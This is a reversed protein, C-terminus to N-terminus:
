SVPMMLFQFFSQYWTWIQSTSLLSLGVRWAARKTLSSSASSSCCARTASSSASGFTRTTATATNWARGSRSTRTPAWRIKWSCRNWNGTWRTWWCGRWCFWSTWRSWASWCGTSRPSVFFILGLRNCDAIRDCTMLTAGGMKSGRHRKFIWFRILTSGLYKERTLTFNNLDEPRSERERVLKNRNPAVPSPNMKEIGKLPNDNKFSFTESPHCM